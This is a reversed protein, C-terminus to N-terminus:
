VRPAYCCSSPSGRLERVRTHIMRWSNSRANCAFTFSSKHTLACIENNIGRALSIQDRVKWKIDTLKEGRRPYTVPKKDRACEKEAMYLQMIFGDETLNVCLYHRNWVSSLYLKMIRTRSYAGKHLDYIQGGLLTATFLSPIYCYYNLSNRTIYIIRAIECTYSFIHVLM